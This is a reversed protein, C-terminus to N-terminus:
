QPDITMTSSPMGMGGLITEIGATNINQKELEQMMTMIAGMNMNDGMVRAVGFGMQDSKGYVIIENVAEQSGDYVMKVKMGDANHSMLLEYKEDGLIQDLKASETTYIEKNEENLPLALVSVKNISNYAAASETTLQSADIGLITKPISTSVFGPEDNHAVYFDQLTEKNDCSTLFLVSTLSIAIVKLILKNM